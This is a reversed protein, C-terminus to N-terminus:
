VAENGVAFARAGRLGAVLRFRDREKLAERDEIGVLALIKGGVDRWRWCGSGFIEDQRLGFRQDPGGAGIDADAAVAGEIDRAGIVDLHWRRRSEELRYIKVPRNKMFTAMIGLAPNHRMTQDVAPLAEGAVRCTRCLRTSCTSEPGARSVRALPPTAGFTATPRM